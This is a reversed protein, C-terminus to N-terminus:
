TRGLVACRPSQPVRRRSWGCFGCGACMPKEPNRAVLEGHDSRGDLVIEAGATSKLIVATIM